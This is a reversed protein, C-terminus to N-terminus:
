FLQYTVEFVFRGGANDTNHIQEAEKDAYHYGFNYHWRELNKIIGLSLNKISNVENLEDNFTNGVSIFSYLNENIRPQWSIETFYSESSRGYYNEAIAITVNLSQSLHYDLRFESYDWSRPFEAKFQYDLYSLEIASHSGIESFYGLYSNIWGRRNFYSNKNHIALNSGVFLGNTFNKNFALKIGPEENSISVGRHVLDNFISSNISMDEAVCTNSLFTSFILLSFTKNNDHLM